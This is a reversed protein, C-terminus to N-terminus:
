NTLFVWIFDGNFDTSLSVFLSLGSDLTKFFNTFNLEFLAEEQEETCSGCQLQTKKIVEREFSKLVFEQFTQGESNKLSPDTMADYFDLAKQTDNVRLAYLGRRSVLINSINGGAKMLNGLNAVSKEKYFGVTKVIDEMSFVTALKGGENNTGNHHLHVRVESNPVALPFDTWEFDTNFSPVVYESYNPPGNELKRFESGQETAVSNVDSQM